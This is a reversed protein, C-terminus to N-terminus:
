FQVGIAGSLPDFKCASVCESIGNIQAKINDSSVHVMQDSAQKVAHQFIEFDRLSTFLQQRLLDSSKQLQRRTEAEVHDIEERMQAFMVRGAIGVITTILAIGFSGLLREVDTQSQLEILAESLSALTYIFGLYYFNDGLRDVRLRVENTRYAVIGYTLMLATAWGAVYTPPVGKLKAAIITSFGFIAIIVFLGRDPMDAVFRRRPLPVRSTSQLGAENSQVSTASSPTSTPAPAEPPGADAANTLPVDALPPATAPASSTAGNKKIKKKSRRDEASRASGAEVAASDMM